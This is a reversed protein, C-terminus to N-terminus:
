SINYPKRAIIQQHRLCCKNHPTIFGLKIPEYIVAVKKECQIWVSNTIICPKRNEHKGYKQIHSTYTISIYFLTKLQM